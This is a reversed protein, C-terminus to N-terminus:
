SNRTIPFYLSITTGEGISSNAKIYGNHKQMIKKCLALGMGSGSYESSIHLKTFINFISEAYEQDFGIGNDQVTIVHFLANSHPTFAKPTASSCIKIKPTHDAKAYKLSNSILNAFLQKVLFKVGYIEPLTGIKINMKLDSSGIEDDSVEQILEQLGLMEFPDDNKKLRTYQLIDGLLDQMREASFNLRTLMHMVHPPLDQEAMLHSSILQLKRLPEQLDHSSIWNINELEANAEKLMESLTRYKEEEKMVLIMNLQRQLSFAYSATADLESQFWPKSTCDVIEKWLNFSNRPSLGKKDKIISKSPDGAWLVESKTEPRYWIICNNSDLDLSHYILGATKECLSKYNPLQNLLKDTSFSTNISHETLFDALFVVEEDSHEVGHKYVNGDVILSVGSANCIELLEPQRIFEEFSEKDASLNFTDIKDFASNVKRSVEYEAHSQRLGIQSTIFHGQLLAARRIEPTLNKPSYHHCAILGWLKQKYILSITLTAGVGMNHLYQVHIPSTSRLISLSLDLNKGPVDDVTFVPVPTYDVDAILRLLNKMYLERAQAPIDTHPYHLGLFPELDDRRSEAYVEGNYHSDFRYIMVRDYGTVERTGKAVLSCLDQMSHTSHMYTLFQSTHDYVENPMRHSPNAPELELIYVEGSRHVTCVFESGLLTMKLLSSSLMQQTTIYDLLSKMAEPGFVDEFTKGLIMTHSAEIFDLTNGSCYDILFSDLKLGILFGHPQISGPIHIPEQECNTLNVLDRNVIDKIRM